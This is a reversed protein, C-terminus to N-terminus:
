TPVGIQIDPNAERMVAALEFNHRGRCVVFQSEM